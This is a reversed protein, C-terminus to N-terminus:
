KQTDNLANLIPKMFEPRDKKAALGKEIKAAELFRGQARLRIIAERNASQDFTHPESM